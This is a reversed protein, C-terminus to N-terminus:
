SEHPTHREREERRRRAREQAALGATKGRPRSVCKEVDKQDYLYFRSSLRYVKIKGKQQLKKVTDAGVPRDSNLSIITAADHVRYGTVIKGEHEVTMPSPRDTTCM